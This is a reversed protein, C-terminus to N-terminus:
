KQELSVFIDYVVKFFLYMQGEGKEEHKYIVEKVKEIMSDWM